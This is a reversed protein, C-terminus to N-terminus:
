LGVEEGEPEAQIIMSRWLFPQQIRNQLDISVGFRDDLASFIHFVSIAFVKVSFTFEVPALAISPRVHEPVISAPLLLTSVWRM